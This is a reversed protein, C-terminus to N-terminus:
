GGCRFGGADGPARFCGAGPGFGVRACAPGRCRSGRGYVRGNSETPEFPPITMGDIPVTDQHADLLVTKTAGASDLRALVNCRGPATKVTEFPVGLRSLHLELYATVRGEFFEPGSVDRGMPNVSPISVLDKLLPLPDTM